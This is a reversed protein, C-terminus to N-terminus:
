APLVECTVQACALRGPNRSQMYYRIPIISYQPYLPEYTELHYTFCPFCFLLENFDKSVSSCLFCFYTVYASFKTRKNQENPVCMVVSIYCPVM